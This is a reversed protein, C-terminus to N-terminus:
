FVRDYSLTILRSDGTTPGIAASNEDRQRDLQAKIASSDDLDYRLALSQSSHGPIRDPRTSRYARFRSHTVMPQWKGLRYGVGVTYAEDRRFIDPYNFRLLETRLFLPGYDANLALGHLNQKGYDYWDKDIYKDDYSSTSRNWGATVTKIKSNSQMYSYRFEYNGRAVALYGGRIKGWQIDSRNNRGYSRKWYGSEKRTESGAYLSATTTWDGWEDRYLMNIGNFNVAEWGYVQPPLHTWPLAFGVDQTDSYYFLPLRKRGVQLTYKDNIRWTTYLWELNIDGDRAGRAVVQGTLHLGSDPLSLTTQLGLRSDPKWQLGGKGEYIGAQAYDSTFCPCQYDSMRGDESGGLMKGVTASLFGSSSVDLGEAQALLPSVLLGLFTLAPHLTKKINM